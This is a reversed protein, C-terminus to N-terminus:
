RRDFNPFYSTKNGMIIEEAIKFLFIFRKRSPGKLDILGVRLGASGAGGSFRM